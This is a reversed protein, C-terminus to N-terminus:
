ESIKWRNEKEESRSKYYLNWLAIAPIGIIFASLLISDFWVAGTRNVTASTRPSDALYLVTVKDGVKFGAILGGQPYSVREGKPTLFEIQPHSGGANLAVVVGPAKNAADLFQRTSHISVVLGYICGLWVASFVIATLRRMLEQETM